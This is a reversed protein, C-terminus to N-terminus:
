FDPSRPCGSVPRRKDSFIFYGSIMLPIALMLWFFYPNAFVIFRWNSMSDEEKKEAQKVLEPKTMEVFAYANTLM